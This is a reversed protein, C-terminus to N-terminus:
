NRAAFAADMGRRHMVKVTKRKKTYAPQTKTPQTAGGGGEGHRGPATHADRRHARKEATQAAREKARKAHFQKDHYVDRSVAARELPLSAASAVGHQGEAAGGCEVVSSEEQETEDADGLHIESLENDDYEDDYMQENLMRIKQKLEEDVDFGRSLAEDSDQVRHLTTYMVDHESRDSLDSGGTTTPCIGGVRSEAEMEPRSTEHEGVLMDYIDRGLYHLFLAHGRLGTTTVAEDTGEERSGVEDENGDEYDTCTLLRSSGAATGGGADNMRDLLTRSSSATAAPPATAAVDEGAACVAHEESTATVPILLSRLHPPCNDLSADLIFQEVDNHYFAIAAKIGSLTFRPFVDRVMAVATDTITDDQAVAPAAATTNNMNNRHITTNNTRATTNPATLSAADNGTHQQSSPHTDSRNMDSTADKVWTYGDSNTNTNTHNSESNALSSLTLESSAGLEGAEAMSIFGDKLLRDIHVGQRVLEALLLDFYRQRASVLVAAFDKNDTMELGLSRLIHGLRRDEVSHYTPPTLYHVLHHIHGGRWQSLLIQVYGRTHECMQDQLVRYSREILAPVCWAPEGSSASAQARSTMPAAAVPTHPKGRRRSRNPPLPSSANRGGGHPLSGTHTDGMADRPLTNSATMFGGGSHGTNDSETHVEFTRFLMLIASAHLASNLIASAARSLLARQPALAESVLVFHQLVPTVVDVVMRLGRLVAALPTYDAMFPASQLVCWLQRVGRYTQEFLGTVDGPLRQFRGRQLEEVCRMTLRHVTDCWETLYSHLRHLSGPNLLFLSSITVAALTGGARFLMPSAAFLVRVPVLTNLRAALAVADVRRTVCPELMTSMRVLVAVLSKEAAARVARRPVPSASSHAAEVASVLTAIVRPLRAHRAVVAWFTDDDAQSLREMDAWAVSMPTDDSGTHAFFANCRADDADPFADFLQM